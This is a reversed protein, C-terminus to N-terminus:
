KLSYASQHTDSACGVSPWTLHRHRNNVEDGTREGGDRNQCGERVPLPRAQPLMYFGTHKGTSDRQLMHTKSGVECNTVHGPRLSICRWIGCRVFSQTASISPNHHCCIMWRSPLSQTCCYSRRLKCKVWAECLVLTPQLMALRKHTLKFQAHERIRTGVPELL